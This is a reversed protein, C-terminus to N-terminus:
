TVKKDCDKKDSYKKDIFIKELTKQQQSLRLERVRVIFPFLLELVLVLVCFLPCGFARKV